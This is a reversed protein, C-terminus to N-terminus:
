KKQFNSDMINVPVTFMSNYGDPFQKKMNDNQIWQIFKCAFQSNSGASSFGIVQIKSGIEIEMMDFLNFSETCEFVDDKSIELDDLSMQMDEFEEFGELELEDILEVCKNAYMRLKAVNFRIKNIEIIDKVTTIDKRGSLYDAIETIAPDTQLSYISSSLWSRQPLKRFNEKYDKSTM